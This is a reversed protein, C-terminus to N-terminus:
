RKMCRQCFNPPTVQEDALIVFADYSDRPTRYGESAVIHNAIDLCYQISVQLLHKASEVKLFDTLFDDESYAAITDLKYRYTTLNEIISQIIRRDAM